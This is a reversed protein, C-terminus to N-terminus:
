NQKTKPQITFPIGGVKNFAKKIISTYFQMVYRPTYVGGISLAYYNKTFISPDQVANDKSLFNWYTPVWNVKHPKIDNIAMSIIFAMEDTIKRKAFPIKSEVKPASYVKVADAFFRRVQKSREFYFFESQIQYINEAKVKYAALMEAMAFWYTYKPNDYAKGEPVSYYGTNKFTIGTGELETFVESPKKYPNWAMDSDLFLTCDYPSLDYLHVKAKIADSAAYYEAPCEIIQNFFKRQTENLYAEALGNNQVLTIPINEVSKISVALNFAMKLYEAGGLAILVIGKSKKM